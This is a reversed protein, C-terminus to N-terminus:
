GDRATLARRALQGILQGDNGSLWLEVNTARPPISRVIDISLVDTPTASCLREAACERGEADRWVLQASGEVFCGYVGTLRATAGTCEAELPRRCCGFPTVDVIPGPCRAAYVELDLAQTEGPAMTRLPGLIESEMFPPPDAGLDLGEIEGLGM